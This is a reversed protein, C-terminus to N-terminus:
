VIIKGVFLVRDGERINVGAKQFVTIGNKACIQETRQIEEETFQIYTRAKRLLFPYDGVLQHEWGKAKSVARAVALAEETYTGDLRPFGEGNAFVDFGAKTGTPVASTFFGWVVTGASFFYKLDHHFHNAQSKGNELM